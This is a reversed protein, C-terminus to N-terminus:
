VFVHGNGPFPFQVQEREVIGQVVQRRGIGFVTPNYLQTEEAAQGYIFCGLHHVQRVGRGFAIPTKGPRPQAALQGSLLHLVGGFHLLQLVEEVFGELQIGRLAGFTLAYANVVWELESISIGLDKRISPLAVNVVTNDLMIMFLGVSVAGLTWWKKNEQTVLRGLM